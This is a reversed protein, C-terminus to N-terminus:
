AGFVQRSKAAPQPWQSPSQPRSFSALNSQFGKRGMERSTKALPGLDDLGAGRHNLEAKALQRFSFDDLSMSM